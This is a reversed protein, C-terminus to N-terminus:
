VPSLHEQTLIGAETHVTRVCHLFKAMIRLPLLLLCAFCGLVAQQSHQTMGWAEVAPM